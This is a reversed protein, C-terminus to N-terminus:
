TTIPKLASKLNIMCKRVNQVENAERFNVLIANPCNLNVLTQSIFYNEFDNLGHLQKVKLILLAIENLNRANMADTVRFSPNLICKMLGPLVQQFIFFILGNQVVRYQDPKCGLNVFDGNKMVDDNGWEVMLEKFCIISSKMIGSDKVEIAGAHLLKLIDELNPLNSPSLLVYSIHNSVIHHILSYILKRISLTEIEIHSLIQPAHKNEYKDAHHQAPNPIEEQLSHILSQCKQIFPTFAGDINTAGDRKYKTCIQNLLQSVNIVDEATCNGILTHLFQPLLVLVKDRNLCLIM